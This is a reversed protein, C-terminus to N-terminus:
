DEQTFEVNEVAFALLMQIIESKNRDTKEAIDEIKKALSMSIRASIVTTADTKAKKSTLILKNEAM